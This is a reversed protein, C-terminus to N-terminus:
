TVVKRIEPSLVLAGELAEQNIHDYDDEDIDSANPIYHLILFRTNISHKAYYRMHYQLQAGTGGFAEAVSTHDRVWNATGGESIWLSPGNGRALEGSPAPDDMVLRYRFIISVWGPHKIQYEGRIDFNSPLITSIYASAPDASNGVDWGDTDKYEVAFPQVRLSHYHDDVGNNLFPYSTGAAFTPASHGRALVVRRDPPNIALIEGGNGGKELAVQMPGSQEYPQLLLMTEDDMDQLDVTHSASINHIRQVLDAGDSTLMDGIDRYRLISNAAETHGFHIVANGDNPMYKGNTVGDIDDLDDFRVAQVHAGDIPFVGMSPHKLALQRGRIGLRYGDPFVIERARHDVDTAGRIPAEQDDEAPISATESLLLTRVAEVDIDDTEGTQRRFSVSVHSYGASDPYEDHSGGSIELDLTAAGVGQDLVYERDGGFTVVPATIDTGVVTGTDTDRLTEVWELFALVSDEDNPATVAEALSFSRTFRLDGLVQSVEWDALSKDFTDTGPNRHVPIDDFPTLIGPRETDGDREFQGERIFAGRVELSELWGEFEAAVLPNFSGYFTLDSIDPDEDSLPFNRVTLSLQNGDGDLLGGNDAYNERMIGLLSDDAIDEYHYIRSVDIKGHGSDGDIVFLIENVYGDSNWYFYIAEFRSTSTLDTPM